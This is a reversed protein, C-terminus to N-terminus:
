ATMRHYVNTPPKLNDGYRNQYGSIFGSHIIYALFCILLLLLHSLKVRLIKLAKYMHAEVTRLSIGLIDAIEKNKMDYLYSMKFVKRSQDPLDNIASLIEKKLEMNELRAMVESNEYNYYAIKQAFFEKEESTYGDVVSKHKLFNISRTYVARYLFSKIHDDFDIKSKNNWLEVFVDQVIDEADDEGVLRAAYFLLASYHQKFLDYYITEFNNVSM